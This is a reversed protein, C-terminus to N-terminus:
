SEEKLGQPLRVIADILGDITYEEATVDVPLGMETATDATIPGICAIWARQIRSSVDEAERELARIFYRVTSSSTFTIVHIRGEELERLLERVGGSAPLTDYAHADVVHCGMESLEEALLPRAINARPLLINEGRRVLPRMAEVLAEARYEEPLCDVRIGKVELEQATKPGIAAIRARHLSRIDMRLESLRRFFTTVGNVSTFVVWDFTNLRDLAEDLKEKRAPPHIEIAPFEMAEGGLARIKDSLIGAQELARTVLIRRGYLPLREFWTLRDRTTVGEGVVLTHHGAAGDAEPLTALAGMWVRQEARSGDRILAAPTDLAWGEQQLQKLVAGWEGPGVPILRNGNVLTGPTENKEENGALSIGAYSLDGWERGIGPVVEFSLGKESWRELENRVSPDMLPDGPVLRVVREGRFCAAEAEELWKEGAQTVHIVGDTMWAKWVGEDVDKRVFLHDARQMARRGRVTVLDPAGSGAGVWILSAQNAKM